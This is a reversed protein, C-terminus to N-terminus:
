GSTMVKLSINNEFFEELAKIAAASYIFYSITDVILAASTILIFEGRKSLFVALILLIILIGTVAIQPFTFGRFHLDGNNGQVFKGFFPLGLGNRYFGRRSCYHGFVKEGRPKFHIGNIRNKGIYKGRKEYEREFEEMKELYYTKDRNLILDFKRM